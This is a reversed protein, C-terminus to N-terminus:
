SRLRYMSKAELDLRRKAEAELEQEERMVNYEQILVGVGNMQSGRPAAM